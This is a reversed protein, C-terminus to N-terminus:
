PYNLNKMDAVIKNIIIFTWQLIINQVETFIPLLLLLSFVECLNAWSCGLQSISLFALCHGKFFLSVSNEGSM